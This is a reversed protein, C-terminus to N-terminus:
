HGASEEAPLIRSVCAALESLLFPKQLFSITPLRVLSDSAASCSYRTPLLLPLQPHTRRLKVILEEGSMEPMALDLFVADYAEDEVKTIAEPGSAATEVGVGRAEMRQSLIAVFESEDDVLLVQAASM